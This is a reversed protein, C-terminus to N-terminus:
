KCQVIIFNNFNKIARRRGIAANLQLFSPSPILTDTLERSNLDESCFCVTFMTAPQPHVAFASQSQITHEGDLPSPLAVNDTVALALSPRSRSPVTVTLPFPFRQSMATFCSPTSKETLEYLTSSSWSPVGATSVTADLYSQCIETGAAADQHVTLGRFPEAPSVITVNVGAGNVSLVGREFCNMVM